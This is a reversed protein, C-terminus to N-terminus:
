ELSIEVHEPLDHGHALIQASALVKATRGNYTVRSGAPCVTAPPAWVTTSSLQEKGAADQTQLRVMRRTEDVVCPTVAVPAAFVAGYGGSGTLAEVTVTAPAPINSTIFANWDM